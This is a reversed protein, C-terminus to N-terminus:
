VIRKTPLTLHTYSVSVLSNVHNTLKQIAVLEAQAGVVGGVQIARVLILPNSSKLGLIIMERADELSFLRNEIKEHIVTELHDIGVYGAPSENTQSWTFKNGHPGNNLLWQWEPKSYDGGIHNIEGIIEHNM